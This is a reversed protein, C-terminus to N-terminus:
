LVLKASLRGLTPLLDTLPFRHKLFNSIGLESNRM